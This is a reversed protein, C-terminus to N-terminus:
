EARVRRKAQNIEAQTYGNQDCWIMFENWHQGAEKNSMSDPTRLYYQELQTCIEIDRQDPKFDALFMREFDEPSRSDNVFVEQFLEDFSPPAKYDNEDGVAGPIPHPTITITKM